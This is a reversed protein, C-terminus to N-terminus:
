AASRNWWRLPRKWTMFPGFIGLCTLVVQQRGGLGVQQAAGRPEVLGRRCVLLGDREGRRIGLATVELAPERM